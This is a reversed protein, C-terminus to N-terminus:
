SRTAVVIRARGATDKTTRLHTWDAQEALLAECATAIMPSIEFVLWGGSHVRSTAENVMRRIVDLGDDGATLALKPEFSRVERDLAEYEANTVYPPNATVLDFTKDPPYSEFLDSEIVEVSEGQDLADVNSQAVAAAKPSIDSAILSSSPLHKAISIAVCGSGTCLDAIVVPRDKKWKGLAVQNKALDIAEIVLHETEPRPILVDPTVRFSISYFEKSGVLYAVPAGEARRRVMERFAVKTEENPEETFATYLMIRECGRAHALLVEADLRGSDSGKETLYGATWELLKGITWVTTQTM